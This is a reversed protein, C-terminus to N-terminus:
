CGGGGSPRPSASRPPGSSRPPRPGDLGRAAPGPGRGAGAPRGRGRGPPHRFRVTDRITLLHRAEAAAGAQATFGLETGAQWLRRPDGTPDAAAALLLTRTSVPLDRVERLYRQELQRGIPVPDPLPRDGTLQGPELQQGIEILALPNGGTETVIRGAV